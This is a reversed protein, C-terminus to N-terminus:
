LRFSWSHCVLCLMHEINAVARYFAARFRASDSSLTQNRSHNVALASGASCDGNGGRFPFGEGLMFEVDDGEFEFAAFFDASEEFVCRLKMLPVVLWM